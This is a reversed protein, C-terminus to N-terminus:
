YPLPSHVSDKSKEDDARAELVAKVAKWCDANYEGIDTSLYFMDLPKTIDYVGLLKRDEMWEPDDILEKPCLVNSTVCKCHWAGVWYWLIIYNGM